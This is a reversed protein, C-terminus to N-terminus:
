RAVRYGRGRRWQEEDTLRVEDDLDRPMVFRHLRAASGHSVVPGPQLSVLVAICDVLHRLRADERTRLFDEARMYVGRRLRRWRGSSLAARIEDPRYGVAVAERGTVIGLRVAAIQELRPHVRLTNTCCAERPSRPWYRHVGPRM